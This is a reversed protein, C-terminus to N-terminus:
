LLLRRCKQLKPILEPDTPMQYTGYGEITVINGESFLRIAADNLGFFKLANYATAQATLTGGIGSTSTFKLDYLQGLTYPKSGILIFSFRYDFEIQLILEVGDPATAEVSCYKILESQRMQWDLASAPSASFLSLAFALYALPKM